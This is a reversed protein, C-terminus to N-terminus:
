QLILDREMLERWLGPLRDLERRVIAIAPPELPSVQLNTGLRLRIDVVRPETIPRGISSALYCEASQVGDVEGVLAQAIAPAAIQYLKGAHTVPNKGAVSELVM